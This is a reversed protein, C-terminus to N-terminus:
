RLRSITRGPSSRPALSGGPARAPNAEARSEPPRRGGGPPPIRDAASPTRPPRPGPAFPFNAGLRVDRRRPRPFRRGPSSRSVSSNVRLRSRSSRAEDAPGRLPQPHHSALRRDEEGPDFGTRSAPVAREPRPAPAEWPSGRGSGGEAPPGSAPRKGSTVVLGTRTLLHPSPKAMRRSEEGARGCGKEGPEGSGM